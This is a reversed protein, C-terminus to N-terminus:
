LWVFEFSLSALVVYGSSSINPWCNIALLKRSAAVCIQTLLACSCVGPIFYHVLAINSTDWGTYLSGYLIYWKTTLLQDQSSM